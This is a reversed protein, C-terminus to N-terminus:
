LDRRKRNYERWTNEEPDFFSGKASLKIRYSWVIQSDRPIRYQEIKAAVEYVLATYIISDIPDLQHVARFTGNPKPALLVLPTQPAYAHIDLDLLKQKIATWDKAIAALEFPQRFFDSAYFRTVHKLSWELSTEKLQFM